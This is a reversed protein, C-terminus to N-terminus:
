IKEDSGESWAHFFVRSFPEFRPLCIDYEPCMGEDLVRYYKRIQSEDDDILLVSESDLLSFDELLVTASRLDYGM